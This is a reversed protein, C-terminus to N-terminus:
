NDELDYWVRFSGEDSECSMLAKPFKKNFHIDDKHVARARNEICWPGPGLQERPLAMIKIM